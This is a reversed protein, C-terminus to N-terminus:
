QGAVPLASASNQTLVGRAVLLAKLREAAPAHGNPTWHFWSERYAEAGEFSTFAINQTRLFSKMTAHTETVVPEQAEDQVGVLFKAGRSEIFEKMMGIIRETPDPVTIFPYRLAVYGTVVLRALWSNRVVPDHSFFSHRSQPVPQAAFHWRGDKDPALYPKYYGGNRMNSSNDDYDNTTTFILVVVDPRVVDWLRKLLLYEQDTGYGSVGANVINTAPLDARLRDTFREHAEVDYGWVFSDGLVLITSGGGTPEIDRLGLSNHRVDITRHGTFTSASNPIPFWGLEPDYGHVITSGQSYGDRLERPDAIRLTVEIVALTLLLMALQLGAARFARV